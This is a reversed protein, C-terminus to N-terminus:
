LPREEDAPLNFRRRGASRAASISFLRLSWLERSMTDEQAGALGARHLLHLNSVRLLSGCCRRTMRSESSRAFATTMHSMPRQSICTRPVRERPTAPLPPRLAMAISTKVRM